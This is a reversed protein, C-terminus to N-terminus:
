GDVKVRLWLTKNHTIPHDVPTFGAEAQPLNAGAQSASMIDVNQPYVDVVVGHPVVQIPDNVIIVERGATSTPSSTDGAGQASTGARGVTAATPGQSEGQGGEGTHVDVDARVM